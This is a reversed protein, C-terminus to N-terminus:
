HQHVIVSRASEAGCREVVGKFKERNEGLELVTDGHRYEVVETKVAASAPGASLLTMALAAKAFSTM